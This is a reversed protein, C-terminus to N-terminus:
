RTVTMSRMRRVIATGCACAMEGAAVISQAPVIPGGHMIMKIGGILHICTALEGMPLNAAILGRM